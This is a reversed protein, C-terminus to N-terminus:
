MMGQSELDPLGNAPLSYPFDVFGDFMWNLPDFVANYADGFGEPTMNEGPM